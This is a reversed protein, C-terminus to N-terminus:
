LWACRKQVDYKRLATKAKKGLVIYYNPYYTKELGKEDSLPIIYAAPRNHHTIKRIERIGDWPCHWLLEGKLSCSIGEENVTILEHATKCHWLTLLLFPPIGIFLIWVKTALGLILCLLAMVLFCILVERYFPEDKRFTM